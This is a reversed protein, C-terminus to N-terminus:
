ELIYKVTLYSFYSDSPLLWSVLSMEDSMVCSLLSLFLGLSYISGPLYWSSSRKMLTRLSKHGLRVSAGSFGIIILSSVVQIGLFIRQSEM